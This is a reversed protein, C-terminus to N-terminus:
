LISSHEGVYIFWRLAQVLSLSNIYISGLWRSDRTRLVMIFSLVPTSASSIVANSTVWVSVDAYIESWGSVYFGLCAAVSVIVVVIIERIWSPRYMQESFLPCMILFVGYFVLSWVSRDHYLYFIWGTCQVLAALFGISFILTPVRVKQKGTIAPLFTSIPSM